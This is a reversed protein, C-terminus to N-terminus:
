YFQAVTKWPSIFLNYFCPHAIIYKLTRLICCINANIFRYQSSCWSAYLRSLILKPLLYHFNFTCNNCIVFVSPLRSFQKLTLINDHTTICIMRQFNIHNYTFIDGRFIHNVCRLYKKALHWSLITILITIVETIPFTVGDFNLTCFRNM